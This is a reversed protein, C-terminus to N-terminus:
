EFCHKSRGGDLIWCDRRGSFPKSVTYVTMQCRCCSYRKQGSAGYSLISHSFPNSCDQRPKPYKNSVWTKRCYSCAYVEGSKKNFQNNLPRNFQNYRDNSRDCGFLILVLLFLLVKKM